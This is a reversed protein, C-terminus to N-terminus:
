EAVIKRGSAVDIITTKKGDIAEVRELLHQVVESLLYIRYESEDLLPIPEGVFQKVNV